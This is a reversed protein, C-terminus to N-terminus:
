VGRHILLPVARTLSRPSDWPVERTPGTEFLIFDPAPQADRRM